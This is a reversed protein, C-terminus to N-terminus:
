TGNKLTRVIQEFDALYASTCGTTIRVLREESEARWYVARTCGPDALETAAFAPVGDSSTVVLDRIEGTQLRQELWARVNEASVPSPFGASRLTEGVQAGWAFRIQPDASIQAPTAPQWNREAIPALVLDQYGERTITWDAPYTLTFAADPSTYRLVEPSATPTIASSPLSCGALLALSIWWRM